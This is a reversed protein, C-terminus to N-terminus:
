QLPLDVYGTCSPSFARVQHGTSTCGPQVPYSPALPDRSTVEGASAADPVGSSIGGGSGSSTGGDGSGSSSSSGQESSRLEQSCPLMACDADIYCTSLLALAADLLVHGHLPGDRMSSVASPTSGGRFGGAAPCSPCAAEVPTRVDGGSPPSGQGLSVRQLLEMCSTGNGAAPLAACSHPAPEFCPQLAQGSLVARLFALELDQDWLPPLSASSSPKTAPVTHPPLSPQASM